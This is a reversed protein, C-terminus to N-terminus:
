PKTGTARDFGQPTAASHGLSVYPQGKLAFFPSLQSGSVTAFWWRAFAGRQLDCWGSLVCRFTTPRRDM